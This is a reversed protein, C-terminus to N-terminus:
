SPGGHQLAQHLYIRAKEWQRQVTRDSVGQMAAIEGVSFGCFYRLDVVQALPPEVTALVDLADGLRALEDADAEPAPVDSDLPSLEQGGGRKKANRARAHDIVVARMVRSAYAMFRNRDPFSAGARGAMDMYAEHLLSTPGITLDAGNRALQRQALRHLEAYLAAFLADTAAPDGGEVSAILSSLAREV